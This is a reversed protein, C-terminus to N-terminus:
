TPSLLYQAQNKYKVIKLNFYVKFNCAKFKRKINKDDLVTIEFTFFKKLNKVQFVLYPFDIGLSKTKDVPTTIYNCSVNAGILEIASTQIDLDTVKKIHGNKVSSDWNELPKPSNKFFYKGWLLYYLILAV